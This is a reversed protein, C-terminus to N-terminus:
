RRSINDITAQVMGRYTRLAGLNAEFSRQIAKLEVMERFMDVNSALVFGNEDARPDTPEYREQLPTKRDVFIESVRVGGVLNKSGPVKSLSGLTQQNLVEEFMVSRRRYPENHKNGISNMNSLNMASVEARQMEARLGSGIIDFGHFIGNMQNDM